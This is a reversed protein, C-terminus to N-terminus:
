SRTAPCSDRSSRTGRTRGIAWEMVRRTSRRSLSRVGDGDLDAARSPAMFIVTSKDWSATVDLRKGLPSGASTRLLMSDEIRYMVDDRGDGDYDAVHLQPAPSAVFHNEPFEVGTDVIEYSPREAEEYEFEKAWQCVDKGDCRQVFRLLSRGTRPSQKYHLRYQNVVEEGGRPMAAFMIVASLRKNTAFRVGSSYSFSPDPRDEYQFVVRRTSSFDIGDVTYRIEDPLIEIAYPAEADKQVHHHYQIGNGSRDWVESLVWAAKVDGLLEITEGAQGHV